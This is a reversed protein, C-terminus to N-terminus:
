YGVFLIAMLEEFNALIAVVEAFAQQEERTLNPIEGSVQTFLTKMAQRVKPRFAIHNTDLLTDGGGANDEGALRSLQAITPEDLENENAIKSLKTLLTKIAAVNANGANPHKDLAALIVPLLHPHSGLLKQGLNEAESGGYTQLNFRFSKLHTRIAKNVPAGLESVFQNLDRFLTNLLPLGLVRDVGAGLVFVVDKSVKKDAAPSPRPFQM